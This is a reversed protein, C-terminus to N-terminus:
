IFQYSNLVRFGLLGEKFVYTIQHKNKMNEFNLFFRFYAYEQYQNNELIISSTKQARSGGFSVYKHKFIYTETTITDSFTYNMMFFFNVVLPAVYIITSDKKLYNAFYIGLYALINTTLFIGVNFATTIQTNLTFNLFLYLNAIISITFQTAKINLITTIAQKLVEIDLDVYKKYAKQWFFAIIIGLVAGLIKSNFVFHAILVVPLTVFLISLFFQLHNLLVVFAQDNKYFDSKLFEEYRMKAYARAKQRAKDRAEEIDDKVPQHYTPTPNKKHALLHQYAETIAIFIQETNGNKNKDPHYAKAKSRFAKKIDQVSADPTVGLLHCYHETTNYM